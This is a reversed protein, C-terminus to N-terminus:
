ASNLDGEFQWTRNGRRSWVYVEQGTCTSIAGYRGGIQNRANWYAMFTYMIDDEYGVSDNEAVIHSARLDDHDRAKVAGGMSKKVLVRQLLVM